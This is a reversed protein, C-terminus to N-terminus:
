NGSALNKTKEDMMKYHREVVDVMNKLYRIARIEAKDRLPFLTLNDWQSLPISLDVALAVDYYREPAEVITDEGFLDVKYKKGMDGKEKVQKEVWQSIHGYM